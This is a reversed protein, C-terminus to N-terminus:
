SKEPNDSGPQGFSENCVKCKYFIKGTVLDKTPDTLHVARHDAEWCKPCYPVEDNPAYYFPPKFVLNHELQIQDKLEKISKLLENNNQSLNIIEGELEVIKKHLDVNGLVKILDALEKANEIIGM